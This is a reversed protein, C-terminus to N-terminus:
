CLKRRNQNEEDKSSTLLVFNILLFFFFCLGKLLVVLNAEVLVHRFCSFVVVYCVNM